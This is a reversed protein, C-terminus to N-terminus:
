VVTRPHTIPNRAGYGALTFSATSLADMGGGDEEWQVAAFGDYAEVEPGNEIVEYFRIKIRNEAGQANAADRIIEQGEDYVTATAETAARQCKGTCSWEYATTVQRKAGGDDFTSADQMTNSKTPKFETLGNVPVWTTGEDTSVDLWWKRNITAEGVPTRNTLPM